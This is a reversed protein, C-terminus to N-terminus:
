WTKNTSRWWVQNVAFCALDWPHDVLLNMREFGDFGEVHTEKEIIEYNRCYLEGCWEVAGSNIGLVILKLWSGRLFLGHIVDENATVAGQAEAEEQEDRPTQPITVPWGDSVTVIIRQLCFAM